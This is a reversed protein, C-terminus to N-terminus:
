QQHKIDLFIIPLEVLMNQDGQKMGKKYEKVECSVLVDTVTAGGDNPTFSWIIDFSLALIDNNPADAIMAEVESQWLVIKGEYDKNGRVIKHGVNGRGRLVTKEQKATYEIEDVGEVIRGGFALSIDNWSYNQSSYKGAM